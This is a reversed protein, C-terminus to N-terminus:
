KNGVSASRKVLDRYAHWGAHGLLPQTLALGFLAFILGVGTFLVILGAWVLMAWHHRWAVTLSTRIARLVNVNRDMVMAVSVVSVAFVVVAFVSGTGIEALVFLVSSWHDFLTDIVVWTVSTDSGFFQEFIFMSVAVWALYTLVLLITMLVMMLPHRVFASLAGFFTVRQGSEFRRSTELFPIAALPGILMFGSLLPLFLYLQDIQDLAILIAYCGLVVILGYGISVMPKRTLDRWGARLWSFPRDTAVTRVGPSLVYSLRNLSRDFFSEKYTV